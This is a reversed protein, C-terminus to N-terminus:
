KVQAIMFNVAIITLSHQILYNTARLVCAHLKGLFLVYNRWILVM